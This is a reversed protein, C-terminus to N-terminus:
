AKDVDRILRVPMYLGKPNWSGPSWVSMISLTGSLMVMSGNGTHYYACEGFDVPDESFRFLPDFKGLPLMGLMMSLKRTHRAEVSPNFEPEFERPDYYSHEKAELWEAVTPIHWGDIQNVIRNAADATYYYAGRYFKIGSEESGVYECDVEDLDALSWMADGIKVADNWLPRDRISIDPRPPIFRTEVEIENVNVFPQRGEPSIVSDIDVFNKLIEQGKRCRSWFRKRYKRKMGLIYYFRTM